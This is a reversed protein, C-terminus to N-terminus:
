SAPRCLDPLEIIRIEERHNAVQPCPAAELDDQVTVGDPCDVFEQPVKTM